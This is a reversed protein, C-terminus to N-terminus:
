LEITEFRLMKSRCCLLLSVLRMGSRHKYTVSIKFLFVPTHGLLYSYNQHNRSNLAYFTADAACCNLLVLAFFKTHIPFHVVHSIDSPLFYHLTMLFMPTAQYFCTYFFDRMRRLLMLMLRMHISIPGLIHFVGQYLSLPSGNTILLIRGTKISQSKLIWFKPAQPAAADNGVEHSNLNASRYTGIHLSYGPLSFSQLPWWPLVLLKRYNWSKLACFTAGAAWCCWHLSRRMWRFGAVPTSSGTASTGSSGGTTGHRKWCADHRVWGIVRRRCVAGCRGDQFSSERRGALWAFFFLKM